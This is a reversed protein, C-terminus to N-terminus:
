IQGQFVHFPSPVINQVEINTLPPKEIGKSEARIQAHIRANPLQFFQRLANEYIAASEKINEITRPMCQPPPNLLQDKPCQCLACPFSTNSSACHGLMNWIFIFDGSLFRLKILNYKFFIYFVCWVVEREEGALEMTKIENIQQWITRGYVELGRRNDQSPFLGVITQNSTSNPRNLQALSVCIKTSNQGHDGSLLLVIKKSLQGGLDRLQFASQDIRQQIADKISTLVM